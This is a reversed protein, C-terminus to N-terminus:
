EKIKINIAHPHYSEKPQDNSAIFNIPPLIYRLAVTRLPLCEESAEKLIKKKLNANMGEVEQEFTKAMKKM